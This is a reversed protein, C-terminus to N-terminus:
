RRDWAQRCRECNVRHYNESERFGILLEGRAIRKVPDLGCLVEPGSLKPNTVRPAGIHYIKDSMSQFLAM